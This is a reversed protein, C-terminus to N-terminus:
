KPVRWKFRFACTLRGLVLYIDFFYNRAIAPPSKFVFMPEDHAAWEFSLGQPLICGEQIRNLFKM